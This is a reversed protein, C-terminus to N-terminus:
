DENIRENIILHLSTNFKELTYYEYNNLFSVTSDFPLDPLHKKLLTLKDIATECEKIVDTAQQNQVLISKSYEYAEKLEPLRAIEKHITQQNLMMRLQLTEITEEIQLLIGKKLNEIMNLAHINLILGIITGEM